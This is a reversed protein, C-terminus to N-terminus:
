PEILAYKTLYGVEPDDGAYYVDAEKPIQAARGYVEHCSAILAGVEPNAALARLAALEAGSAGGIRWSAELVGCLVDGGVARGMVVDYNRRSAFFGAIHRDAAADYAQAQVVVRHLM